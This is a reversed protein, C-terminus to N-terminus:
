FSCLVSKFLGKFSGKKEQKPKKEFLSRRHEQESVLSRGLHDETWPLLSAKEYEKLKM